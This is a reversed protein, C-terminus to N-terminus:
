KAAAKPLLALAGAPLSSRGRRPLLGVSRRAVVGRLPVEGSFYIAM